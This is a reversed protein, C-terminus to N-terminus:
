LHSESVSWRSGMSRDPQEIRPGQSHDGAPSSLSLDIPAIVEFATDPAYPCPNPRLENYSARLLEVADQADADTKLPKSVYNSFWPEARKAALVQERRDPALPM